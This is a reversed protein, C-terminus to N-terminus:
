GEALIHAQNFADWKVLVMYISVEVGGRWLLEESCDSISDELSYDKNQELYFKVWLEWITSKKKETLM